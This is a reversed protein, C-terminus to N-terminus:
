DYKMSRELNNATDLQENDIDTYEFLPDDHSHYTEGTKIMGKKSDITINEHYTILNMGNTAFVGIDTSNMKLRHASYLKIDSSNVKINSGTNEVQMLITKSNGDMEFTTEILPIKKVDKTKEDAGKKIQTTFKGSKSYTIDLTRNDTTSLHVNALFHNQDTDYPNVNEFQTKIKTGTPIAAFYVPFNADGNEFFCWVKTGIAPYSFVGSGTKENYGFLSMAMEATPLKDGKLLQGALNKHTGTKDRWKLPFVGPIWVKAEGFGGGDEVSVFDIIEGRYFGYLNNNM